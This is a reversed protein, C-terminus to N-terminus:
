KNSHIFQEKLAFYFVNKNKLAVQEFLEKNNLDIKHNLDIDAVNDLLFGSLIHFQKYLQLYSSVDYIESLFNFIAGFEKSLYKYEKRVAKVFFSYIYDKMGFLSGKLRFRTIIASNNLGKNKNFNYHSFNNYNDKKDDDDEGEPEEADAGERDNTINKSLGFNTFDNLIQARSKKNDIEHEKNKEKDKEEVIDKKNNLDVFNNIKPSEIFIFSSNNISTRHPLINKLKENFKELNSKNLNTDKSNNINNTKKSDNKVAKLSSNYKYKNDLINKHSNGKRFTNSNNKKEKKPIGNVLPDRNLEEIYRINSINFFKNDNNNKEENDEDSCKDNQKINNISYNNVNKKSERKTMSLNIKYKNYFFGASKRKNTDVNIKEHESSRKFFLESLYKETMITKVMYTLCDFIFFVANFIPFVNAIITYVKNYRRTYLMKGSDLFISLSYLKSSPKINLIEGDSYLLDFDSSVYGWFSSNFEDNFVLGKDDSFVYEQVYLREEKNLINSFNYFHNKYIVLVPNEYNTPQFEVIPYFYEFAWSNNKIYNSKIKEYSTCNANSESYENGDKCLYIDINMYNIFNANWGGGLEINDIEACYLESSPVDLFYNKGRQEFDTENCLKYQIYTTQFIFGKGSSYKEGKKIYIKPYLINTFNIFNKEYDIIRWPIWLKEKGFKVKHYGDQSVSSMNSIPNKHMLDKLCLILFISICFFICILSIWGGYSTYLKRKNGVYFHFHIGFFDLYKLVKM